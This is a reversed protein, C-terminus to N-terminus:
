TIINLIIDFRKRQELKAMKFIQIVFVKFKVFDRILNLDLFFDQKLFM